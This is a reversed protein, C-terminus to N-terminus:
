HSYSLIQCLLEMNNIRCANPNFSTSHEWFFRDEAAGAEINDQHFILQSVPATGLKM